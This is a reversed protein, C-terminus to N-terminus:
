FLSFEWNAGRFWNGVVTYVIFGVLICTFIAIAAMRTSETKKLVAISWLAYLTTLITAPNICIIIIQSIEPFWDRLWGVQVTLFIMGCTIILAYSMSYLSITRGQKGSFWIGCHKEERDLYPILFLSLFLLTPIVIGGSFASYSVLEQLGLFYWPSKAPNEPVAPNAMERLPADIFYSFIVLVALCMMFVSLETWMLLPWSHITHANRKKASHTEKKGAASHDFHNEKIAVLQDANHPLSLGNSKRIRWFHFGILIIGGLPLIVIHLLYFRNLAEQGVTNAGLLFHKILTGIYIYSTLGLAETLEDFSAAINVAITTAWYALQDWPLLYGSFSFLITILLLLLGIIWNIRRTKIYAATYFVRALHLIVIVVMAHGAWRHMNRIIKGGAVVFIIDKVSFYAHEVSPTYYFMLLIGTFVLIIFLSFSILGLGLTFGPWLTYKHVKPSHVHLFFNKSIARSRELDSVPIQLIKNLTNFLSQKLALINTYLKRTGRKSM